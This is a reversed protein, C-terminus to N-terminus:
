WAASIGVLATPLLGGSAIGQKVSAGPIDIPRGLGAEAFWSAGTNYITRWGFGGWPRLSAAREDGKLSTRYLTMGAQLMVKLFISSKMTWESLRFEFAPGASFALVEPVGRTFTKRLQYGFSIDSYDVTVVGLMTVYPALKGGFALMSRGSMLFDIGLDMRFRHRRANTDRPKNDLDVILQVADPALEVSEVLRPPLQHTKVRVPPPASENQQKDSSAGESQRAQQPNESKESQPQEQTTVSAEGEPSEQQAYCFGSALLGACLWKSWPHVM